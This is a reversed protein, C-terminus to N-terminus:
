SSGDSKCLQEIYQALLGMSLTAGTLWITWKFWNWCSDSSHLNVKRIMTGLVGATGAVAVAHYFFGMGFLYGAAGLLGIEVISILCLVFKTHDRWAVAVSKVGARLDDELDQHAYVADYIVTNLVNSLYLCGMGAITHPKQQRIDLGMGAAGVLQGLGLSFGLVVQPYNTVRKCFPYLAMTTTLLIAPMRCTRPLQNLIAISVASQALTFLHAALPSVAGRAVPRHRCRAVQRDYDVDLTDNWSCAAGRLLLSGSIFLLNRQLLLSLEPMPSLVSSAYLTGFLHPFYFAYYGAPKHLRMLEAYPVMSSPLYSVFGTDPPHYPCLSPFRNVEFDARSQSTSVDADKYRNIKRSQIGM